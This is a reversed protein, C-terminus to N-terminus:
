LAVLGDMENMSFAEAVQLLEKLVAKSEVTVTHYKLSLSVELRGVVDIPRNRRGRDTCAPQQGANRQRKGNVIRGAYRM